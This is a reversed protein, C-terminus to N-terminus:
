VADNYFQVTFATIEDANALPEPTEGNLYPFVALLDLLRTHRSMDRAIVEPDYQGSVSFGIASVGDPAMQWSEVRGGYLWFVGRWGALIARGVEPPLNIEPSREPVSTEVTTEVVATANANKAM